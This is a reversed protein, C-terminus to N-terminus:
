LDASSTEEFGEMILRPKPIPNHFVQELNLKDANIIDQRAEQERDLARLVQAREYYLRSKLLFVEDNNSNVLLLNYIKLALEFENINYLFQAKDWMLADKIYDDAANEIEFDFDKLAGEYDNNVYKIYIKNDFNMMKYDDNELKYARDYDQIASKYNGSKFNAYGRLSYGCPSYPMFIIRATSCYVAKKYDGSRIFYKACYPSFVVIAAIILFISLIATIVTIKKLTM